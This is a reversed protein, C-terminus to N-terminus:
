IFDITLTDWWCYVFPILGLRNLRVRLPFMMNNNGGGNDGDHAAAAKAASINSDEDDDCDNGGYDVLVQDSVTQNIFFPYGMVLKKWGSKDKLTSEVKNNMAVSYRSVNERCNWRTLQCPEAYWQSEVSFWKTPKVNAAHLYIM